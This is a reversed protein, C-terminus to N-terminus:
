VATTIASPRPHSNPLICRGSQDKIFNTARALNRSPTLGLVRWVAKTTKFRAPVDVIARDTLAVARGVGPGDYKPLRALLFNDWM